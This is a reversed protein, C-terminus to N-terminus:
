SGESVAPAPGAASPQTRPRLREKVTLFPREVLYYSMAALGIVVAVGLTLRVVQDNVVKGAAALAWQHWLYVPYSIIGLWRVVPQNLWGWMRQRSLPVMQLILIMCLASDVTFGVSYHWVDGIQTRSVWLAVLVALPALANPSLADFVRGGSESRAWTAALGGVLIADVRMEFANYAYANTIMGELYLFSRVGLVTVISVAIGRRLTAEGGRMLILFAAPWLLYFQEEVALSWIHAQPGSHDHFAQYYNATYTLATAVQGDTWPTGLLYDAAITAALFAYYAPFIRLTRRLYFARMSVTGSRDHEKLLLWTILFGSLAFFTTVGLDGPVQQYGAHYTVVVFAAVARLGDLAPIHSSRLESTLSM